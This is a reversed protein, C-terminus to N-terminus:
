FLANLYQVPNLSTLSFRPVSLVITVPIICNKFFVVVILKTYYNFTDLQKPLPIFNICKLSILSVIIKLIKGLTLKHPVSDKNQVKSRTLQYTGPFGNPTSALLTERPKFRQLVYAAFGVGMILGAIAIMQCFPTHEEEIYSPAVCWRKAHRVSKAASSNTHRGRFPLEELSILHFINGYTMLAAVSVSLSMLFCPILGPPKLTFLLKRCLFGLFIGLFLGALLQHPFDAAIFLRSLALVLLFGFCATWSVTKAHRKLCSSSINTSLLDQKITNSVNQMLFTTVASTVMVHGSIGGPSTDCEANFHEVSLNEMPHAFHVWWYPRDGGVFWKIVLGTLQTCVATWLLKLGLSEHLHYIIPFYILTYNCPHGLRNLMVFIDKWRLLNTQVCAVLKIERNYVEQMDFVDSIERWM